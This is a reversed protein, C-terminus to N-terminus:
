RTRGSFAHRNFMPAANPNRYVQIDHEKLYDSAFRVYEENDTGVVGTPLVVVFKYGMRLMSFVTLPRFEDRSLHICGVTPNDGVCSNWPSSFATDLPLGFYDVLLERGQEDFDVLLRLAYGCSEGTLYNLGFTRLDNWSGVHLTETRKETNPM